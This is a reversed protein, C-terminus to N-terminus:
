FTAQGDSKVRHQVTALGSKVPKAPRSTSGQRIKDSRTWGLWKMEASGRLSPKVRAEGVKGDVILEKKVRRSACVPLTARRV